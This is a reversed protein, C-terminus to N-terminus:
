LSASVSCAPPKDIEGPMAVDVALEIDTSIQAACSAISRPSPAVRLQSSDMQPSPQKQNWASELVKATRM